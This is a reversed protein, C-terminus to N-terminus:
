CACQNAVRAFDVFGVTRVYQCVDHRAFESTPDRVVLIARLTTHFPLFELWLAPLLAIDLHIFGGDCSIGASLM